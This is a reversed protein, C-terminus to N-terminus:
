ANMTKFEAIADEFSNRSEFVFIVDGETNRNEKLDIIKFDGKKLLFKALQPSFIIKTRMWGGKTKEFKQYIRIM